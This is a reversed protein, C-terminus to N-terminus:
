REARSALDAIEEGTPSNIEEVLTKFKRHLAQRSHGLFKAMESWSLDEKLNVAIRLAVQFKIAKELTALAILRLLYLKEDLSRRSSHVVLDAQSPAAEDDEEWQYILQDVAVQLANGAATTMEWWALDGKPWGM